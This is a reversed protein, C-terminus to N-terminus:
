GWACAGRPGFILGAWEGEEEKKRRNRRAVQTVRHWTFAITNYNSNGNVVVEELHYFDKTFPFLRLSFLSQKVYTVVTFSNEVLLM